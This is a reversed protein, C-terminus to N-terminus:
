DARLPLLVGNEIPPDKNESIHDCRRGRFPIPNINGFRTVSFRGRMGGRLYYPDLAAVCVFESVDAPARPLTRKEKYPGSERSDGQASLPIDLGTFCRPEQPTWLARTPGQFDSPSLTLRTGPRVWIRLLDGLHVAELRYFLTPLPLRCFRDTVEPSPNARLVPGSPSSHSAPNRRPRPNPRPSSGSGDHAWAKEHLAEAEKQLPRRPLKQFDDPM